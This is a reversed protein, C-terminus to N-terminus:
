NPGTSGTGSKKKGKEKEQKELAKVRIEQRKRLRTITEESNFWFDKGDIMQKIEDPTLFDKYVDAFLKESWLEDFRSRDRLEHGKGSLGGSYSHLLILSHDSIEYSSAGLMLLTAASACEGEVSAIIRAGSEQLCRMFQIATHLYGGPSNIHLKIVDFEGANRIKEFVEVYEDAEDIEGIIYIDYLTGLPKETYLDNQKKKKFLDSLDFESNKTQM